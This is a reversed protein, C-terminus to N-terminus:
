GGKIWRTSLSSPWGLLLLGIGVKNILFESRQLFMVTRIYRRLPVSDLWMAPYPLSVRRYGMRHQRFLYRSLGSCQRAEPLKYLHHLHRAPPQM